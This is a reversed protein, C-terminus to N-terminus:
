RPKKAFLYARRTPYEIGAPYPDREFIREVRFGSKALEEAVFQPRFLYFQISIAIGFIEQPAIAEDGIHFALLLSGQPGLVRFMEDFARALRDSPLNVIAYFAAIGALALNDLPLAFMDGEEFRITPNSRRAIAIMGPSVDIGFVDIGREALYRAVQGPGCGLDCVLGDDPIGSAFADLMERDFPKADLEAAYKAAYPEAIDDYSTVIQARLEEDSTMGGLKKVIVIKV